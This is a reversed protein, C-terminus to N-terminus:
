RSNHPPPADTSTRTGESEVVLQRTEHTSADTAPVANPLDVTLYPERERIVDDDDVRVDDDVAGSVNPDDDPLGDDNSPGSGGIM